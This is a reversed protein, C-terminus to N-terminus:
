GIMDVEVSRDSSDGSSGFSEFQRCRRQTDLARKKATEVASVDMDIEDAHFVDFSRWDRCGKRAKMSDVIDSYTKPQSLRLCRSPRPEPPVPMMMKEITPDSVRKCPPLKSISNNSVTSARSDASGHRTFM